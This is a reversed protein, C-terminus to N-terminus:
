FKFGLGLIDGFRKMVEPVMYSKVSDRLRSRSPPNSLLFGMKKVLEKKSRYTLGLPELLRLHHRDMRPNRVWHPGLVPKGVALPEVVSFGFSEGMRRGNLILDCCAYFDWVQERSLFPIYIIRPHAGFFNTNVALFYTDSFKELVDFVAKRAAPDSFQNTGGIRGIVKANHPIGHLKRFLLGDGVRPEVMHPLWDIKPSKLVTRTREGRAIKPKAWSFLWESVYLYYDGHPKFVRFVVRTILTTDLLRPSPMELNVYPMADVTGESFVYSHTIGESTILHELQTRSNFQFLRMGKELAEAIRLDSNTNEGFPFAIISDIGFYKKLSSSMLMLDVSDGRETFQAALLVFKPKM